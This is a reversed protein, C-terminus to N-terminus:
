RQHELLWDLVSAFADRHFLPAHGEGQLTWLSVGLGPDCGTFDLVETELADTHDLRELTLDHPAGLVPTPDCGAYAAWRDVSARASPFPPTGGIVAGGAYTITADRDGHMHLISVAESPVCVNPDLYDAAALVGVGAFREAHECAMRYAMFGGNSHGLLYIRARDIPVSATVEDLVADLAAVDDVTSGYFNCCADTANWFPAGSDDRTADPLLLYIGRSRTLTDLAFYGNQISADVGYGHLLVVLPLSTTGDHAWPVALLAPREATGFVLDPPGAACAM